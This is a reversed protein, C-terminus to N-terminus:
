SSALESRSSATTRPTTHIFAPAAPRRRKAQLVASRLSPGRPRSAAQGRLPLPGHWGSAPGSPRVGRLPSPTALSESRPVEGPPAPPAEVLMRSTGGRASPDGLSHTEAHQVAGDAHLSLARSSRRLVIPEVDSVVRRVAKSFASVTKAHKVVIECVVSDAHIELLVVDTVHPLGMLIDRVGSRQEPTTACVTAKFYKYRTKEDM